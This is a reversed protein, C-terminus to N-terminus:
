RCDRGWSELAATIDMFNVFGDGNADGPGTGPRYNTLFNTLTASIDTMGVIRDNNADGRCVAFTFVSVDQGGATGRLVGGDNNVTILDPTGDGTVDGGLVLEPTAGPLLDAQTTFALQGGFLDNRIIRVVRQGMDNTTIVAIDKDGDNDLDILTLNSPEDGAPITIPPLFTPTGNGLLVTVTDANRTAFAVDNFGDLNLDAADVDAPAGPVPAFFPTPNFVTGGRLALPGNNSITISQDAIDPIVIDDWKDNDIDVAVGDAVTPPIAIVQENIFGTFTGGTPRSNFLITVTPDGETVVAVDPAGDRNFDSRILQRPPGVVTTPPIAGRFFTFNGAGDNLLVQITGDTLSAFCLDNGNLGDFDAVVIASPNRSVTIQTTSTFGQWFGDVSGANFLLVISGPNNVPDTSDPVTIAIDIIGDGNLDGLDADTGAGGVDYDQATASPAPPPAALTDEVIWVGTGGRESDARSGRVEFRLFRPAGTLGPRLGPFNAVDFTGTTPATSTLIPLGASLEGSEPRFGNSFRVDLQGGLEVSGTCQVADFDGANVGEIDIVLKGPIGDNAPASLQRYAGGVIITSTLDPSEPADIPAHGGPSIVGRNELVGAPILTGSGEIVGRTGITMNFASVVAGQPIDNDLFLRGSGGFRGVSLENVFVEGAGPEPVFGSVVLDGRSGPLHGVVLHSDSGTFRSSNRVIMEGHGQHGVFISSSPNSWYGGYGDGIDIRGSGTPEAGITVTDFNTNAVSDAAIDLNGIGAGGVELLGGGNHFWNASFWFLLEGSSEPGTGLRVAPGHSNVHASSGIVAMYGGASAPAIDLSGAIDLEVEDVYLSQVIFFGPSSPGVVVDQAHAAPFSFVDSSWLRLEVEDPRGEGVMLSPRSGPQTLTLDSQFLDLAVRGSLVNLTGITMSSILDASGRTDPNGTIAAYDFVIDDTAGAIQGCLYAGSGNLTAFVDAVLNRQPATLRILGNTAIGEVPSLMDGAIVLSEPRLGDADDDVTVLSVRGDSQSPGLAAVTDWVTTFPTTQRLGGIRRIGGLNTLVAYLKEGATGSGDPDFAALRTGWEGSADGIPNWSLANLNAFNSVSVGGADNFLGTAVLTPNNGGPGDKDWLQLDYVPGQPSGQYLPQWEIGNWLAVGPADLGGATSFSGAVYLAPQYDAGAGDPDFVVADYVTGNLGLHMGHWTIGGSFWIAANSCGVDGIATFQGGVFVAPVGGALAPPLSAVCHIVPNPNSINPRFWSSGNWVAIGYADVPGVGDLRDISDFDGVIALGDAEGLPGFGDPDVSAMANVIAPACCTTNSIACDAYRTFQRGDWTYLPHHGPEGRLAGGSNRTAIVLTPAAVGLNSSKITAIASVQADDTSTLAFAGGATDAAPQFQSGDFRMARAQYAPGASQGAFYLTPQNFDASLGAFRAFSRVAATGPPTGASYSQGNFSYVAQSIPAGSLEFGRGMFLTDPQPGGDDPDHVALTVWYTNPNAFVGAPAGPLPQWLAGGPMPLYAVRNAGFVTGAAVLSTTQPGPGDPDYATLDFIIEGGAENNTFPGTFQFWGQLNIDWKYLCKAPNSTDSCLM